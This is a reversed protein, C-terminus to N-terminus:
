LPLASLEWALECASWKQFFNLLNLIRLPLLCVLQSYVLAASSNLWPSGPVFGALPWLPVQVWSRWIELGAGQGSQWAAERFFCIDYRLKMEDKTGIKLNSFLVMTCHNGLPSSFLLAVKPYAKNRTDHTVTWINVTKGLRGFSLHLTKLRQLPIKRM